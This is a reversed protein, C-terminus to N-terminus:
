DEVHKDISKGTATNSREKALKQWYTIVPQTEGQYEDVFWCFSSIPKDFADVADFFFDKNAKASLRGLFKGTEASFVPMGISFTKRAGIQANAIEGDGMIKGAVYEIYDFNEENKYDEIFQKM